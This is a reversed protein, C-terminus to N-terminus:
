ADEADEDDGARASTITEILWWALVGALAGILIQGGYGHHSPQTAIVIPQVDAM